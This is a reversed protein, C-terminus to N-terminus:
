IEYSGLPMANYQKTADISAIVSGDPMEELSFLDSSSVLVEYQSGDQETVRNGNADIRQLKIM